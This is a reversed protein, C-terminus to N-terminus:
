ERMSDLRNKRHRIVGLIVPKHVKGMTLFELNSHFVAIRFTSRNGDEPNFNARELLDLVTPTEREESSPPFPDLQLFNHNRTM